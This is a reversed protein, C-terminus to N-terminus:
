EDTDLIITVPGDIMIKIDMYKGFKGTAVKVGHDKLEEVFYNYLKKAKEPEEAKIFSPRNGDKTNAYLTFQSVVLFSDATLNMKKNEDGMVRLKILKDVLKDVEKESDGNKIGLLVFLGNEIEGVKQGNTSVSASTVRQIVLRM